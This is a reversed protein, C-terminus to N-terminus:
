HNVAINIATLEIKVYAILSDMLEYYCQNLYYYHTVFLDYAEQVPPMRPARRALGDLSRQMGQLTHYGYLWNHQKMAPFYAAFGPPFYTAKSELLTYTTQSFAMLAEGSPFMKPDNALFHDYFIDTLAGAFLRYRERFPLKARLTAAHRDSFQDIKRHLLIGQRINEPYPELALMGKVHDGIMNGTLIDENGFSLYAHALLNMM